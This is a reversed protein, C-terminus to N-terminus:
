FYKKLKETLYKAMTCPYGLKLVVKLITIANKKM